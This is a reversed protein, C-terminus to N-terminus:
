HGLRTEIRIQTQFYGCEYKSAPNASQLKKHSEEVGRRLNRSLAEFEHVM